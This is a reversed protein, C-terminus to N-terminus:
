REDVILTQRRKEWKMFKANFTGGGTQWVQRRLMGLIYHDIGGNQYLERIKKKDKHTLLQIAIEQELDKQLENNVEINDSM